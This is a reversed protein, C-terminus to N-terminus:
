DDMLPERSGDAYCRFIEDGKILLGQASDGSEDIAVDASIIKGNFATTIMTQENHGIIMRKLGNEKMFADVFEQTVEPAGGGYNGYGRYWLPGFQGLILDERSRQEKQDPKNLYGRVSENIEDYSYGMVALQPSIGAHLFLNGNIQLIVNLSRLWRGIVTNASYLQHYYTQTYQSFYSYKEHLYRHDGTLAMVEHNGLLLHVGGGDAKAQMQLDYLFWLTETVKEGRDFVDGLLVLRGDGFAWNHQEDIVKNNTLLKLLAEYHGHIDGVTFIKAATHNQSSESPFNNKVSYV